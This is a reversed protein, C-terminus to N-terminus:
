VPRNRAIDALYHRCLRIAANQEREPLQINHHAAQKCHPQNNRCGAAIKTANM